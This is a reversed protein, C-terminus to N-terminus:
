GKYLWEFLSIFKREAEEPTLAGSYPNLVAANWEWELMYKDAIKVSNPMPWAFGFREAIVKMLKNEAEVYGPIRHKIPTPVDLLYAESADHMLAALKDWKPVLGVVTLCHQAVSYHRKTHGAFRCQLSLAHAIDEIRIDSPEPNFPDIFRGSYTRIKGDTNYLGTTNFAQAHPYHATTTTM